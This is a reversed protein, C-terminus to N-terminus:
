PTENGQRNNQLRARLLAEVAAIGHRIAAHADGPEEIFAALFGGLFTDGAGTTDSTDIARVPFRAEGESSRLVVGSGGRTEILLRSPRNSASAAFAKAAFEAEGRSWAAIDARAAVRAALDGPMVREDVKVSWILKTEPRILALIQETVDPPGVTLCVWDAEAVLTSQRDDLRQPVEIAPDFLCHCGGDPDYALVSTPMRGPLPAIGGIEVGAESLASLFAQSERDQGIWSVPIADSFGARVMASAIFAPPGGVRPWEGSRWDITTTKDAVMPGRLRFAYDFSSFGTIAVRSM